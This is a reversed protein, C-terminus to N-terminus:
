PAAGALPRSPPHTGTGTAERPRHGGRAAGQDRAEDHPGAQELGQSRPWPSGQRARPASLRPRAARENEILAEAFLRVPDYNGPDWREEDIMSANSRPHPRLPVLVAEEEGGSPLDVPVPRPSLRNTKPSQRKGPDHDPRAPLPVLSSGAYDLSM